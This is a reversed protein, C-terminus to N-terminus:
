FKITGVWTRNRNRSSKEISFSGPSFHPQKNSFELMGKSRRKEVSVAHLLFHLVCRDEFTQKNVLYM